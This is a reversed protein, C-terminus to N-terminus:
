GLTKTTGPLAHGYGAPKSVQSISPGSPATVRPAGVQQTSSLRGAPTMPAAHKVQWAGLAGMAFLVANAVSAKKATPLEGEEDPPPGSLKAGPNTTFEQSAFSSPGPMGMSNRYQMRGPGLPGSYQSTQFGVKPMGLPQFKQMQLGQTQQNFAGVSGMDQSQRLRKAPGMGGPVKPTPIKSSGLGKFVPAGPVRPLVSSEKMGSQQPFFDAYLEENPDWAGGEGNDKSPKRLAKAWRSEPAAEKEVLKVDRRAKLAKLVNPVKEKKFPRVEEDNIVEQAAPRGKVREFGEQPLHYLYGPHNFHKKLLGPKREELVMRRVKGGQVESDQSFESKGWSKGAYALAFARSPTAFVAPEKVVKDGDAKRPELVDIKHPSGHLLAALKPSELGGPNPTKLYAKRPQEYKAKAKKRGEPTGYGKPSKGLRHGQQTAIAFAQSKDMEPNKALIHKAREHIWAPM